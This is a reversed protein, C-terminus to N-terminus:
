EDDDESYLTHEMEDIAAKWAKDPIDGSEVFDSLAKIVDTLQKEDDTATLLSALRLAAHSVDKPREWEDKTQPHWKGNEWFGYNDSGEEPAHSKHRDEFEKFRGNPDTGTKRYEDVEEDTLNNYEDESLPVWTNDDKWYGFDPNYPDRKKKQVLEKGASLGDKVINYLTPAAVHKVAMFALFGVPGSAGLVAMMASTGLLTGVFSAAKKYDGEDPKFEIMRHMAALGSAVGLSDKIIGRALKPADARVREASRKRSKSNKKTGGSKIFKQASKPLKNLKEETKRDLKLGTQPQQTPSPAREPKVPEHPRSLGYGKAYKSDPHEEIYQKKMDDTLMDFWEGEAVILRSAANIQAHTM